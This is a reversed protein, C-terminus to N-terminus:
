RQDRLTIRDQAPTGGSAGQRNRAPPQHRARCAQPASFLTNQSPRAEGLPALRPTLEDALERVPCGLPYPVTAMDAAPSRSAAHPHHGVSGGAGHDRPTMVPDAGPPQM